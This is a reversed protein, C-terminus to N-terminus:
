SLKKLLRKLFSKGVILPSISNIEKPSEPVRPFEYIINFLRRFKGAPCTLTKVGHWANATNKFLFSNNDTIQCSKVVTFDDFDPNQSTTLKGGLVLTSGGWNIDWDDSTNFYFIHTGIKRESDRHPSVESTNFGLHWAYRVNYHKVDFVSKIFNDYVQNTELEDIFRQWPIPLDERKAIGEGRERYLYTYITNEYALYYRNHPRQGYRDIGMHKEFLEFSPFDLYLESFAEPTLFSHFNFWPFPENKKFKELDFDQLLESNIFYSDM